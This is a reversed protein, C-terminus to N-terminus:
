QMELDKASGAKELVWCCGVISQGNSFFSESEIFIYIRAGGQQARMRSRRQGWIGGILVLEREQLEVEVLRWMAAVGPTGTWVSPVVRGPGGCHCFGLVPTFFNPAGGGQHPRQGDRSQSLTSCWWGAGYELRQHGCDYEYICLIGFFWLKLYILYVDLLPNPDSGGVGWNPFKEWIIGNKKRVVVRILIVCDLSSWWIIYKMFDM